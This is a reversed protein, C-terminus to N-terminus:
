TICVLAMPFSLSAMSSIVLSIFYQCLLNRDSTILWCVEWIEDTLNEKNKKMSIIERWKIVHCHYKLLYM